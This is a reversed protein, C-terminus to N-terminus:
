HGHAQDICVEQSMGNQEGILACVDYICDGVGWYGTVPKGWFTKVCDRINHYVRARAFQCKYDVGNDNFSPMCLYGLDSFTSYFLVMFIMGCFICGLLWKKGRTSLYCAALWTTLVFSVDVFGVFVPLVLFFLEAGHTSSIGFVTIILFMLYMPLGILSSYLLPHRSSSIIKILSVWFVAFLMLLVPFGFMGFLWVYRSVVFLFFLSYLLTWFWDKWIFDSGCRRWPLDGKLIIAGLYVATSLLLFMVLPRFRGPPYFTPLAFFIVLSLFIGARAHAKHWKM